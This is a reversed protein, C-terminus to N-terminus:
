GGQFLARASPIEGPLEISSSRSSVTDQKQISPDFARAIHNNRKAEVRQDAEEINIQSLAILAESYIRTSERVQKQEEFNLKM